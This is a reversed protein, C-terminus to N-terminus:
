EVVPKLNVLGYCYKSVYFIESPRILFPGFNMSIEARIGRITCPNNQFSLNLDSCTKAYHRKQM